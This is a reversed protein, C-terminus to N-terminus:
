RDAEKTYGLQRLKTWRATLLKCLPYQKTFTCNVCYNSDATVLIESVSVFWVLEARIEDILDKMEKKLAM